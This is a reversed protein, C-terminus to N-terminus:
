SPESTTLSRLVTALVDTNQDINYHSVVRQRAAIGYSLGQAPADYLSGVLEALMEDDGAHFLLGTERHVLLEPIGNISPAICPLERAMAEMIVIPIGEYLSAMVFVDASGYLAGLREESVRGEFIVHGELGHTSAYEELNKRDPGDGVFRLTVARGSAVLRSMAALLLRHGKEASLRGVCLLEFVETEVSSRPPFASVEIGLAIYRIKAWHEPSSALMLQGVGHRSVSRVFSARAIKLGLQGGVPDYLEGYGYVGFGFPVANLEHVIAALGATFSAYLFEVNFRAMWDAVLTAEALYYLGFRAQRRNSRALSLALRASRTFRRPNRVLARLLSRM